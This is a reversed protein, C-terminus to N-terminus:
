VKSACRVKIKACSERKVSSLKFCIQSGTRIRCPLDSRLKDRIDWSTPRCLAKWCSINWPVTSGSFACFSIFLVKARPTLTQHTCPDTSRVDIFLPQSKGSAFQIQLNFKFSNSDTLLLPSFRMWSGHSEASRHPVLEHLREMRQVTSTGSMAADLEVVTAM